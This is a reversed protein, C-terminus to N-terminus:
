IYGTCYVGVDTRPRPFPHHANMELVGAACCGYPSLKERTNTCDLASYKEIYENMNLPKNESTKVESVFNPPSSEPNSFIFDGCLDGSYNRLCAYRSAAMHARIKYQERVVEEVKLAETLVDRLSPANCPNECFEKPNDVMYRASKYPNDLIRLYDSRCNYINNNIYISRCYSKIHADLITINSNSMYSKIYRLNNYFCRNKQINKDCMDDYNIPLQSPGYGGRILFNVKYIDERINSMCYYDLDKICLLETLRFIHRISPCINNGYKEFIDKAGGVCDSTCYINHFAEQSLDVDDRVSMDDTSIINLFNSCKSTVSQKYDNWYDSCPDLLLLCMSNSCSLTIVLKLIFIIILM